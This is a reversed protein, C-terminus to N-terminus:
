TLALLIHEKLLVNNVEIEFSIILGWPKSKLMNFQFDDKNSFDLLSCAM